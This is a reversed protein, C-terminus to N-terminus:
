CQTQKQFLEMTLNATFAPISKFRCPACAADAQACTHRALLPSVVAALRPVLYHGLDTINSAYFSADGPLSAERSHPACAACPRPGRIVVLAARLRLALRAPSCREIFTAVEASLARTVWESPLLEMRGGGGPLTRFQLQAQAAPAQDAGHQSARLPQWPPAHM